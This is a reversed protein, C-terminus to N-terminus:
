TEGIPSMPDYVVFVNSPSIFAGFGICHGLSSKKALHGSRAMLLWEVVSLSKYIEKDTGLSVGNSSKSILELVSEM